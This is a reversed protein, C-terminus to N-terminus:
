SFRQSSDGRMREGVGARWEIGSQQKGLNRGKLSRGRCFTLFFQAAVRAAPAVVFPRRARPAGRCVGAPKGVSGRRSRSGPNKRAVQVGRAVVVLTSPELRLFNPPTAS